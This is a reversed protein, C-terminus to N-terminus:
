LRTTELVWFGTFLGCADNILRKPSGFGGAVGTTRTQSGTWDLCTLQVSALRAKYVWCGRAMAEVDGEQPEAVVVDDAQLLSTWIVRTADLLKRGCEVSGGFVYGLTDDVGHWVDDGTRGALLRRKASEAGM